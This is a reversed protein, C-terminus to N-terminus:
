GRSLGPVWKVPPQTPGLPPRSPRFIKAGGPNSGSVELGYDTAIGVSSGPGCIGCIINLFLLSFVHTNISTATGASLFTVYFSASYFIICFNIHLFVVFKYCSIHSWVKIFVVPNGWRFNFFFFFHSWVLVFQFWRCPLLRKSFSKSVRGPFCEISESCFVAISSVDCMIRFTSCHSIQLRLPPSWRQNLLLLVLAFLGTVVVYYYYYNNNNNNNNNNNSIYTEQWLGKRGLVETSGATIGVAWAELKM